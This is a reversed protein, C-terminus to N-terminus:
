PLYLTQESCVSGRNVELPRNIGPFFRVQIVLLSLKRAPMILLSQM